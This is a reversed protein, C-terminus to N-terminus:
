EDCGAVCSKNTCLQGAPCPHSNNCGPVCTGDTGDASCLQGAPCPYNQDCGAKCVRNQKDCIQGGEECGFGWKSGTRYTCNAACQGDLCKVLGSGCDSDISCQQATCEKRTLFGFKKSKSTVCKQEQYCNSDDRCGPECKNKKCINGMSCYKDNGCPQVAQAKPHIISPLALALSLCLILNKNMKIVKM